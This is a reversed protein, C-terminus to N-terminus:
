QCIGDVSCKAVASIIGNTSDYLPTADVAVTVIQDTEGV